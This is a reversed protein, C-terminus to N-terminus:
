EVKHAKRSHMIKFLYIANQVKTDRKKEQSIVTEISLDNKRMPLMVNCQHKRMEIRRMGSFSRKKEFTQGV